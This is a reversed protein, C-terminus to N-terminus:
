LNGACLTLWFPGERQPGSYGVEGESYAVFYVVMGVLYYLASNTGQYILVSALAVLPLIALRIEISRHVSSGALFGVPWELAFIGFGALLNIIQLIPVPKM